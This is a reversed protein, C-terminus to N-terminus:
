NDVIFDGVLLLERRLYAPVRAYGQILLLINKKPRFTAPTGVERCKPPALSWKARPPPRYLESDLLM